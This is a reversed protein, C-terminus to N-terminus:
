SNMVQKAANKYSHLVLYLKAIFPTQQTPTIVIATKNQCRYLASNNMQVFMPLHSVIHPHRTGAGHRSSASMLCFQRVAPLRADCIIDYESKKLFSPNNQNAVYNVIQFCSTCYSAKGPIGICDTIRLAIYCM